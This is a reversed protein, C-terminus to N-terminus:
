IAYLENYLDEIGELASREIEYIEPLKSEIEISISNEFLLNVEEKSFYSPSERKPNIRIMKAKGGFKELTEESIIRM